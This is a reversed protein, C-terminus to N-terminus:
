GTQAKYLGLIRGVFPSILFAGAKLAPKPKAFGFCCPTLTAILVKKKLNNLRVFVRWTSALKIWFVSKEIGAEQILSDIIRKQYQSELTLPYVRMLKLYSFEAPLYEYIRVSTFRFNTELM